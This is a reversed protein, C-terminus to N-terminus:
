GAEQQLWPKPNIADSFHRIEFYVENVAKDLVQDEKIEEGEKVVPKKLGAYLSYYHDGHDIIITNGYTPLKGMFAVKGKFVANVNVEKPAKFTLGKHVLKYGYEPHELIGFGKTINGKMPVILDGKKEFFSMDLLGSIDTKGDERLAQLKKIAKRRKAGLSTLYDAKESQQSNLFSESKELKEQMAILKKVEKNLKEKKSNLNSINKKFKTVIEFDKKAFKELYYLSQNLDEASQATFIVQLFKDEGLMYLTRIRRSLLIRQEKLQAEIKKIEKNINEVENEKAMLKMKAKERKGSLKKLRKNMLYLKAMIERSSEDLHVINEKLAEYDATSASSIGTAILVFIFALLIPKM